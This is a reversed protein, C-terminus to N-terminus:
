KIHRLVDLFIIILGPHRMILTDFIASTGLHCVKLTLITSTEHMSLKLPCETNIFLGSPPLIKKTWSSARFRVRFM